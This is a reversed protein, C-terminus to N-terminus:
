ITKDKITSVELDFCDHPIGCWKVTDIISRLASHSGRNQKKIEDIWRHIFKKSNVYHVFDHVLFSDERTMFGWECGDMDPISNIKCDVDIFIFPAHDIMELLFLPKARVNDIWRNGYKREVIIHEIGLRNCNEALEKAKDSYFTGETDYYFSIVKCAM